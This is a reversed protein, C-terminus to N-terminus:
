NMLQCPIQLMLMLMQEENLTIQLEFIAEKNQDTIRPFVISACQFEQILHLMRSMDDLSSLRIKYNKLKEM